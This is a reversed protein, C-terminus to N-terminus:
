RCCRARLGGLPQPVLRAAGRARRQLLLTGPLQNGYADTPAISVSDYFRRPLKREIGGPLSSTDFEKETQEAEGALEGSLDGSLGAEAARQEDIVGFLAEEAGQVRDTDGAGVGALDARSLPM